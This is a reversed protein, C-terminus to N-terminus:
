SSAPSPPPVLTPLIKVVIGPQTATGFYAFNNVTDIVASSLYDEGPNLTLTEVGGFNSLDVKAVRGPSTFSGFYAFNNVTDITASQFNCFGCGVGGHQARVLATKIWLQNTEIAPVPRNFIEFQNARERPMEQRTQFRVALDVNVPAPQFSNRFGPQTAPPCNNPELTEAFDFHEALAGCVARRFVPRRAKLRHAFRFPRDKGFARPPNLHIMASKFLLTQNFAGLASPITGHHIVDTQANPCEHPQFTM